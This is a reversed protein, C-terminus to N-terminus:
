AVFELEAKIADVELGLSIGQAIWRINVAESTKLALYGLPVGIGLPDEVFLRAMWRLRFRRLQKELDSLRGSRACAELGAGLPSEYPTRALVQVARELSDQKGVQALLEFPLRGPSVFLHCIDDSGLRDHLVRREAPAHAFRLVTLLNTLDAELDLASGLLGKEGASRQLYGRAQQFYWRDLALEMEFMGAGPREIRLRLLPQAIPLRASVLLDIAIRPEPVSALRTLLAPMLEGVPLLAVSIEDCSAGKFLGRLITKLNHVDYIRLMTAVLGGARGSYFRHVKGLTDILNRRVAEGICELGSARALAAEVAKRYDTKTLASVLGPFSNTGALAESERRDLLRSKMARIRANGYDYGSMGHKQQIPRTM